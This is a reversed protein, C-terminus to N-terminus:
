APLDCLQQRLEERRAVLEPHNRKLHYIFSQYDIGYRRTISAVPELTTAYATFAPQFTRENEERRSVRLGQEPRGERWYPHLADMGHARYKRIWHRVTSDDLNMVRAIYRSGFGESYLKVVQSRESFPHRNYKRKIQTQLEPMDRM